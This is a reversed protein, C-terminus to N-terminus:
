SKRTPSGCKKSAARCSSTRSRRWPKSGSPRAKSRNSAGSRSSPSTTPATSSRRDRSSSAQMLTVTLCAQQGAALLRMMRSARSGHIYIKGDLRAYLMPICIPEGRAVFALHAVLGRDLIAEVTSREYRGKKPNRRVRIRDPPRGDRAM